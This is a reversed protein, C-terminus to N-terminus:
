EFRAGALDMHGFPGAGMPRRGPAPIISTADPARYAPYNYNWQHVLFQNCNSAVCAAEAGYRSTPPEPSAGWPWKRTNPVTGTASSAGNWAYDLDDPDALEGGDWICFAAAVAPMLCTMVKQDLVDHPYQGVENAAILGGGDGQNFWYPRGGGSVQCGRAATDKGYEWEDPFAYPGLRQAVETRNRPLWQNWDANWRNAPLDLDEIFKRVNGNLREMMQRMRGATVKFKGLAVKPKTTRQIEIAACCDEGGNETGAAGGCTEGGSVMACSRRLVCRKKTAHCGDSVCDSLSVCIKGVACRPNGQGGCDQDTETGNQVGDNPSAAACRKNGVSAAPDATPASPAGPSCIKDICDSGTNCGRGAACAPRNPGGCDIDTESGNTRDDIAPEKCVPQALLRDCFFTSQCDADGVCKKGEGCGLAAGGGCDVDTEGLNQLGDSHTPAQCVNALCDGGDACDARSVCARGPACRVADAGGCDIDTEDLNQVGDAHTPTCLGAECVDSVCDSAVKCAQPHVCKRADPGGCDVDTETGNKIGDTDSRSQCVGTACLGSECDLHGNCTKGTACRIDCTFGCDVDSEDGNKVRDTCTAEAPPPAGADTEATPSPPPDGSSSSIKPDETTSCAVALVFALGIFGFRARVHLTPLM